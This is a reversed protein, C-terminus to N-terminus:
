KQGTATFYRNLVLLSILKERRPNWFQSVYEHAHAIIAKCEEPHAEYYAIKEVIDSFDPQIEIYHYGGILRGEMFWTECTPKPMVAISNSSMVWKLNSAVDNGELSMIYRYKLHDYLSMPKRQCYDEPFISDRSTDRINLLPHHIYQRVFEERQPKHRCAGRFIAMPKKQEWGMPDRMFVFHRVKDLNLLINNANSDDTTIPRSKTIEPCPCIYNIDGPNFAWLLNAPFYRVYEQSDFYYVSNCKVIHGNKWRHIRRTKFKFENLRTADDPLAISDQFKCYYSVRDDIYRKEEPSLRNYRQLEADLRSNLWPRPRLTQLAGHLYYSFKTNQRCHHVLQHWSKKIPNM